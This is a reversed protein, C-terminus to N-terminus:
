ETWGDSILRRHAEFCIMWPDYSIKECLRLVRRIEAQRQEATLGPRSITPFMSQFTALENFAM